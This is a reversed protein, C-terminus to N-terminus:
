RSKANLRNHRCYDCENILENIACETGDTPIDVVRKGDAYEATYKVGNKTLNVEVPCESPRKDDLLSCYALFGSNNLGRLKFLAPSANDSKQAM